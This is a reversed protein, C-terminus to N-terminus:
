KRYGEILMRLPQAPNGCVYIHYDIGDKDRVNELKYSQESIVDCLGMGVPAKTRSPLRIETLKLAVEFWEGDYDGGIFLHHGSRAVADASLIPKTM